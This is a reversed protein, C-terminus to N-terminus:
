PVTSVIFSLAWHTLRRTMLLPLDVFPPYRHYLVHFPDILPHLLRDAPGLGRDAEELV